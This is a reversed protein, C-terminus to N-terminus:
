NSEIVIVMEGKAPVEPTLKEGLIGRHFTEFRKTLERAVVVKQPGLLKFLEDLTKHIRYPSEFIVVALGHQHPEAILRLREKGKKALFGLFAFRHAILGAGMLAAIVASPGPIVEIKYGAEIAARVVSSGPDSVTPAGADSIFSVQQGDALAQLLMPIRGKEQPPSCSVLRTKSLNIGAHTLLRRSHLPSEALIIQSSALTHVARPSLDALNGIPTAVISLLGAM